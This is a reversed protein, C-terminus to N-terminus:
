CATLETTLGSLNVTFGSLQSLHANEPNPYGMKRGKSATSATLGGRGGARLHVDM